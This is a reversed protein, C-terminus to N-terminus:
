PSFGIQQFVPFLVSSWYKIRCSASLLAADTYELVRGSGFSDRHPVWGGGSVILNFM